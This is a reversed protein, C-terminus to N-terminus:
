LNVAKWRSVLSLSTRRELDCENTANRFAIVESEVEM